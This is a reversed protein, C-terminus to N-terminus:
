NSQGSGEWTGRCILDPHITNGLIRMNGTCKMSVDGTMNLAAALATRVPAIQVIALLTLALVIATLLLKTSTELRYVVVQNQM